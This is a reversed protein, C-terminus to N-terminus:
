CAKREDDPLTASRPHPSPHTREPVLDIGHPGRPRCRGLRRVALWSGRGAGHVELAELAYTSCSPYFRCPSRRGAACWRYARVLRHLLGARLGM